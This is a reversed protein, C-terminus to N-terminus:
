WEDITRSHEDIARCRIANDSIEVHCVHHVEHTLIHHPSPSEPLNPFAYGTAGTTICDLGEYRHREYLHIHGAFFAHAGGRLLVPLLNGPQFGDATKATRITPSTSFAVDPHLFIPHHAFVLAHENQDRAENLQTELWRLQACGEPMAGAEWPDGAQAITDLLLFRCGTRRLARWPLPADPRFLRDFRTSVNPAEYDHNGPITQIECVRALPELLEVCGRWQDPDAANNVLDGLIICLDPRMDAALRVIRRAVDNHNQPDGFVILSFPPM